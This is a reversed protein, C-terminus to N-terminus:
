GRTRAEERFRAEELEGGSGLEELAERAERLAEELAERGRRLAELTLRELEEGGSRLRASM